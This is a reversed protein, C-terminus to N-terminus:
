QSRKRKFKLLNGRELYMLTLHNKTLSTISYYYVSGDSKDKTILSDKEITYNYSSSLQRDYYDFKSAKTFVIKYKSDDVSVWTGIINDDNSAKKKPQAAGSLFLLLPVFLIFFKM